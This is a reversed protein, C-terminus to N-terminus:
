VPGRGARRNGEGTEYPIRSLHTGHALPVSHSHLSRQATQARQGDQPAGKQQATEQPGRQDTHDRLGRRFRQGGIQPIIQGGPLRTLHGHVEPGHQPLLPPKENPDANQPERGQAGRPDWDEEPRPSKQEGKRHRAEAPGEAPSPGARNRKPRGAKRQPGIRNRAPVWLM